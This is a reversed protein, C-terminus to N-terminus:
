SESQGECRFTDSGSCTAGGVIYPNLAIQTKLSEQCIPIMRTGAAMAMTAVAMANSTSVLRQLVLRPGGGGRPLLPPPPPPPKLTTLFNAIRDM